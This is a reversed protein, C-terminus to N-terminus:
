PRIAFHDAIFCLNGRDSTRRSADRAHLYPRGALSAPPRPSPLSSEVNSTPSITVPMSTPMVPPLRQPNPVEALSSEDSSASPMPVSMSTPMAPPFHRPNVRPSESNNAAPIPSPMAIPAAPPLPHPSPVVMLPSDANSDAPLPVPMSTPVVPPLPQPDPVVVLPSEGNSAAVLFGDGEGWKRGQVKNIWRAFWPLEPEQALNPNFGEEMEKYLRPAWIRWFFLFVAGAAIGLVGILVSLLIRGEKATTSQFAFASIALTFSLVSWQLTALPLALLCATLTFDPTEPANPGTRPGFQFFRLYKSADASEIETKERHQWVHHLGTVISTMACLSSVMAASRQLPTIPVALFGVTVSVLVTAVLNSHFEPLAVAGKPITAELRVRYNKHTGCLIIGLVFDWIRVKWTPPPIAVDRYIRAERTGYKYRERSAEIIIMVRAVHHCLAPILHGPLFNAPGRLDRYIRILREIQADEFPFTTAKIELIRENAGFALAGLFETEMFTQFKRRHMPFRAVHEWFSSRNKRVFENGIYDYSEGRKWSAFRIQLVGDVHMVSMELDPIAAEPHAPDCRKARHFCAEASTYVKLVEGLTPKVHIDDTTLLRGDDYTYYIGGNLHVFKEWGFPLRSSDDSGESEIARSGSVSGVEELPITELTSM